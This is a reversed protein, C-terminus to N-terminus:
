GIVAGSDCASRQQELTMVRRRRAADQGSSVAYFIRSSANEISSPGSEGCIVHGLGDTQPRTKKFQCWSSLEVIAVVTLDTAVDGAFAFGARRM